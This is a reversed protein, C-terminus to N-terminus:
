ERPPYDLTNRPRLEGDRREADRYHRNLDVGFKKIPDEIQTIDGSENDVKVTISKAVGDSKLNSLHVTTETDGEQYTASTRFFSGEIKESKTVSGDFGSMVTTGTKPDTAMVNGPGPMLDNPGDDAAKVEQQLKAKNGQLDLAEDMKVADAAIKPLAEKIKDPNETLQSLSMGTAGRLIQLPWNGPLQAAFDLGYAKRLTDIRTDGRKQRIRGDANRTRGGPAAEPAEWEALRPRAKDIKKPDKVMQTLSTGTAARLVQLPMNGPLGAAFNLGYTERLTDVQTTGSKTRFRGDKNRTRETKAEKYAKTFEQSLEKGLEKGLIGGFMGGMMAGVAGFGVLAGTGVLGGAMGGLMGVSGVAMAGYVGAGVAAAGINLSEWPLGLNPSGKIAKGDVTSPTEITFVKKHRISKPGAKSANFNTDM